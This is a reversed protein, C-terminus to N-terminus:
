KSRPQLSWFQALLAATRKPHEEPFFLKAGPIIAIQQLGGVNQRLWGLSPETDFVVDGDGWIVQAPIRSSKLKQGATVLQARNTNWDALKKFQGIRKASALIPELYLKINESTFVAPNEYVLAGLQEQGFQANTLMVRMAETIAGEVVSKYFGKLLENPWHESVECNALTLSRVREPRDAAFIQSIGGGTDNGVLDVADIKLADLLAPLMQAQAAFSVDQSEPVDSYGLGMLDPAICRRLVALEGIVDRWQYGCLPLGHVFLAVPGSGQEYYSIRGFPTDVHRRAESFQQPNM